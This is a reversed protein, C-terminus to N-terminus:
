GASGAGVATKVTPLLLWFVLTLGVGPSGRLSGSASREMVPGESLQQSGIQTLSGFYYHSVRGCLGFPREAPKMVFDIGAFM